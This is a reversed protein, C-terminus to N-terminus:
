CLLTCCKEGQDCRAKNSLSAVELWEKDNTAANSNDARAEDVCEVNAGSWALVDPVLDNSSNTNAHSYLDRDDNCLGQAGLRVDGRCNSRDQTRKLERTKKKGLM